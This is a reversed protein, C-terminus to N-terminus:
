RTIFTAGLVVLTLGVLLPTLAPAGCIAVGLGVLYPIVMSGVSSGGLALANLEPRWRPHRRVGWVLFTPFVLSQGLGAIAFGLWRAPAWATLATGALAVILSIRVMRMLGFRDVAPGIFWRGFTFLLFYGATALAGLLVGEGLGAYFTTAWSSTSIELGIYLVYVLGFPLMVAWASAGAGHDTAAEPTDAPADVWPWRLVQFLTLGLVALAVGGMWRWPLGAAILTATVLAAVIGGIGWMSHLRNLTKGPRDGAFYEVVRNLQVEALVSGLSELFVAAYLWPLPLTLVGVLGLGLLGLGVAIGARLGIRGAVRNALLTGGLYGVGQLSFVLGLAEPTTANEVALLPLVPGLFNITLSQTLMTLYAGPLVRNLTAAPGVVDQVASTM